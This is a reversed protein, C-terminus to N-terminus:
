NTLVDRKLEITKRKQMPIVVSLHRIMEDDIGAHLTYDQRLRGFTDILYFDKDLLKVFPLADDNINVQHIGEFVDKPAFSIIEFFERDVIRDDIKRLLTLEANVDNGPVHVLKVKHSSERLHDILQVVATNKDKPLLQEVSEMRYNFGYKLFLFSVIPAVVLIFVVALSKVITWLKM